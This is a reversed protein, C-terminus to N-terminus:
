LRPTRDLARELQHLVQDAEDSPPRDPSFRTHALDAAIRDHLARNGPMLAHSAALAASYFAAYDGERRASRCQVMLADASVAPQKQATMGTSPCRRMRLVIACLVLVVVAAAAGVAPASPFLGAKEVILTCAETPLAVETGRTRPWCRVDVPPIRYRGPRRASLTFRYTLRQLSGSATAEFSSSRLSVNKPFVPEPPVIVYSDANGRWSVVIRVEFPTAPRLTDSPCHLSVAPLEQAAVPCALVVLMLLAGPVAQLRRRCAKRSCSKSAGPKAM